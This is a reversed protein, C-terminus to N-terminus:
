NVRKLIIHYKGDIDIMLPFRSKDISMTIKKVRKSKLPFIIYTNGKKEIKIPYIDSSSNKGYLIYEVILPLWPKKEFIKDKKYIKEKKNEKEYLLYNNDEKIFRFNYNYLWSIYHYTSGEAVVRNKEITIKIEGVPISGLYTKYLVEESFVCFPILLVILIKKIM